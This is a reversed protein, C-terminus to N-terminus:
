PSVASGVSGLFLAVLWDKNLLSLWWLRITSCVVAGPYSSNRSSQILTKKKLKFRSSSIVSLRPASFQSVTSWIVISLSSPGSRWVQPKWNSFSDIKKTWAVESFFSSFAVIVLWNPDTTASFQPLSIM